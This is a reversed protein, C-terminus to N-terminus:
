PAGEFPPSGPKRYRDLPSRKADSGYYRGSGELEGFLLHMPALTGQDPTLAGVLRQMLFGLAPYLVFGPLPVWWPVAKHFIETNIMGPSCANVALKPHARATEVTYCNLLAKTLGYVGMAAGLGHAELEAAGNAYGKVEDAVASIASWTVAPDVFLKQREASCKTVCQSAAGSSVNVIRGDPQLHPLFASNVRRPGSLNTEFIESVSGFAIGANNVIAYLQTGSGEAAFKAAAATVSADSGTDMELLSLRGKWSPNTAVLGDLAEGGRQASRCGLVVHTDTHDALCRNAIALGIGKNAGTVLVHRVM